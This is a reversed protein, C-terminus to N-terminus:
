FALRTWIGTPNSCARRSLGPRGPRRAARWISIGAPSATIAVVLRRAACRRNRRARNRRRPHDQREDCFRAGAGPIQSADGRRRLRRAARCLRRGRRMAPRLRRCSLRAAPRQSRLSSRRLRGIAPMEARLYQEYFWRMTARDACLGRRRAISRAADGCRDGSLDAASLRAARPRAGVPQRGGRPRRRQRRRGGAPPISASRPAHRRGLRPLCDEVAAPIQARRSGYDVSVVACGARNATDAATDHSEIDGVVWGGGHFFVLVPLVGSAAARYLRAPIPGGPGPIALDRLEAIPMPEPALVQRGAKFLQRAEAAGVTEFAPRNAARIMELLIEADPDLPM